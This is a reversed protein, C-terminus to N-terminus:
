GEGRFRAVRAPLDERLLGQVEASLASVTSEPLADVWIVDNEPDADRENEVIRVPEWADEPGRRIGTVGACVCARDIRISQTQLKKLNAENMADALSRAALERAEAEHGARAKAAIERKGQIPILDVFSAGFDLLADNRVKIIRWLYGGVEVSSEASKAIEAAIGM